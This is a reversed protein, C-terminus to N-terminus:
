RGAHVDIGLLRRVITRGTEIHSADQYLLYMDNAQRLIALVQFTLDQPSQEGSLRGAEQSEVVVANVLETWRSYLLVLQDRVAGPRTDYESNAAAFFCGGPFIDREVFSLWNECLALLKKLPDSEQLAPQVIQEDYVLRAQEIIALELEEKSGFLAHLSSKSMGLKDALMGITLGQLGHVTAEAPAASLVAHRSREGNSRTRRARTGTAEVSM